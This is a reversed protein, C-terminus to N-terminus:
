RKKNYRQVMLNHKHIVDLASDFGSGFFSLLGFLGNIEHAIVKWANAADRIDRAALYMIGKLLAVDANDHPNFAPKSTKEVV